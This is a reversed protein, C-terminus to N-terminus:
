TTTIRHHGGLHRTKVSIRCACGELGRTNTRLAEVNSHWRPFAARAFRVAAMWLVTIIMASEPATSQRCCGHTDASKFVLPFGAASPVILTPLEPSRSSIKLTSMVLEEPASDGKLGRLYARRSFVSARFRVRRTNQDDDGLSLTVHSKAGGKAPPPGMEEGDIRAQVRNSTVAFRRGDAEGSNAPIWPDITGLTPSTEHLLQDSSESQERKDGNRRERRGRARLNGRRAGREPTVSVLRRYVEIPL